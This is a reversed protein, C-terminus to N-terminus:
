YSISNAFVDPLVSSSSNVGRPASIGAGQAIRTGDIRDAVARNAADGKVADLPIAGRKLDWDTGQVTAWLLTIM